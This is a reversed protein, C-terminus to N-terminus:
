SGNCKGAALSVRVVASVKIVWKSYDLILDLHKAGLNQLYTITPDVGSLV